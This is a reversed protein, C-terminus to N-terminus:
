KQWLIEASTGYPDLPSYNEKKRLTYFNKMNTEMSRYDSTTSNGDLM